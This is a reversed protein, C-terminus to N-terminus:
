IRIANSPSFSNYSNVMDKNSLHLYKQTVSLSTHGLIQQLIAPNGGQQIYFTAASHRILHPHLKIDHRQGIRQIIKHYHRDKIPQGDSMCFLYDGSYKSRWKSLFNHITKLTKLGIPVMREKRGKGFVKILRSNFDLDEIKLNLLESKRIMGDWFLLVMLINRAGEFRNRDLGNLILQIEEQNIIKKISKATKLLRIGIMPSAKDWLNEEVLYNFFRRFARIRGNVTESSVTDKISLIYQQIIQKNVDQVTLSSQNMYDALYWIREFYVSITKPSLNRQQCDVKISYLLPSWETQEVRM